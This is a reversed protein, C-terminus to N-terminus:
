RRFNWVSSTFTFKIIKFLNDNATVFPKCPAFTQECIYSNRWRQLKLRVSYKLFVPLQHSGCPPDFGHDQSLRVFVCEVSQPTANSDDLKFFM